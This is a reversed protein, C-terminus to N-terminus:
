PSSSSLRHAAAESPPSRAASLACTGYTVLEGPDTAARLDGRAAVEAISNSILGVRRQPSM